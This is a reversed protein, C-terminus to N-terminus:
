GSGNWISAPVFVEGRFLLRATRIVGARLVTPHGDTQALQLRVTFQGAPHEISLTRAQGISTRSCGEAVSGPVICATAISVAGLVGIATHCRSPIFTRTSVHGGFRPPAILCIKPVVKDTVNGLNMLPGCSRRIAEVRRKLEEDRDLEGPSEYGTRGVDTARLVVVPMGNDICTVEIGEVIDLANGTPLLAGCGSGAADLYNCIIPAAAGPVGDISTAGDYEVQGAATPVIVECLDGSNVMHIRVPTTSESSAHVLGMEMAFPAVAALINGCNPSTDVRGEGVVVQAFLYDVDADSRQSRSVIGVKSTLPDAGGLGDIQRADAGMAAVLVKDRLVSDRPLDDALFFLGKSSGGRMQSCRIATQRAMAGDDDRPLNGNTM